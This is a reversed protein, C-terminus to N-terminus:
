AEITIPQRIIAGSALVELMMSGMLFNFWAYMKEDNVGQDKLSPLTTYHLKVQDLNVIIWGHSSAPTVATPMKLLSYNSGLVDALVRKFPQNTATYIGDFRTTANTGYFIIAKRGSIQDADAANSMIKTHLDILSDADTDIEVSSNLTYNADGSWFLGNNIMNSSSTGEGLLLLEDAQKQHEDLVQSVVDEVGRQDQLASQVFQNALFYKKFTKSTENVGIQRM